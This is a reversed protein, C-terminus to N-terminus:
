FTATGVEVAIRPSFFGHITPTHVDVCMVNDAGMEELMIAIDAAAISERKKNKRQDQRAYGYYPIVVTITKASARRLTSILLFLQMISDSSTTSQVIFISKGRVSEGIQVRTEGDPFRGLQMQNLQVELCTAIDLGLNLSAPGALLVFKEKKGGIRPNSYFYARDTTVCHNQQLNKQSLDAIGSRAFTSPDSADLEPVAESQVPSAALFARISQQLCATQSANQPKERVVPVLFAEPQDVSDPTILPDSSSGYSPLGVANMADCQSVTLDPRRSDGTTTSALVLGVGGTFSALGLIWSSEGRTRHSFSRQLGKVPGLNLYRCIKPGVGLLM